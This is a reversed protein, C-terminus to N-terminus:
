FSHINNDLSTMESAKFKGYLKRWGKALGNTLLSTFYAFPNNSKEPDFSKWYLLADLMANQICDERDENLKFYKKRTLNEAILYIMKLADPTLEGQEKSKIMEKLFYPNSVYQKGDKNIKIGEIDEYDNTEM